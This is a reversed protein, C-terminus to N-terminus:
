SMTELPFPYFGSRWSRTQDGQPASPLIPSVHEQQWSYLLPFPSAQRIFLMRWGLDQSRQLILTSKAWDILMECKLHISGNTEPMVGVDMNFDTIFKLPVWTSVGFTNRLGCRGSQPCSKHPRQLGHWGFSDKNEDTAASNYYSM